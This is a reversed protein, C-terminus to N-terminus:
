EYVYEDSGIITPGELDSHMLMYVGEVLDDVYTYARIATGDGWVPITGGDCESQETCAEAGFWHSQAFLSPELDGIAYAAYLRDQQLFALIQDKNTLARVQLM